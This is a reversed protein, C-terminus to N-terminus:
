KGTGSAPASSSRTSAAAADGLERDYRFDEFVRLAAGLLVRVADRGEYPKYVVPSRFVVDEALTDTLADLDRAEVAARFPIMPSAERQVVSRVRFARAPCGSTPTPARPRRKLLGAEVMFRTFESWERPVLYGFPRGRPPEFAELTAKVSALTNKEDLGREADLLDQVEKEPDKRSTAEHRARAAGM